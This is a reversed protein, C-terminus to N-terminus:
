CRNAGKIVIKGISRNIKSVYGNSLSYVKTISDKMLIVNFGNNNASVPSSEIYMEGNKIPCFCKKYSCSCYILLLFM